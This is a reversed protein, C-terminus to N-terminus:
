KSIHRAHYIIIALEAAGQAGLVLVKEIDATRSPGTLWSVLGSPEQATIELAEAMSLAAQAAPIVVVLRRPCLSLRWAAPPRGAILVAGTEPVAGLGVLVATDVQAPSLSESEGAFEMERLLEAPLYGAAERLWPHDAMVLPFGVQQGIAQALQRPGDATQFVAAAEQCRQALLEQSV